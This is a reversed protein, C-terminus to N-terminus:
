RPAGVNGLHRVGRSPAAALVDGVPHLVHCILDVGDVKVSGDIIPWNRPNPSLAISLTLAAM